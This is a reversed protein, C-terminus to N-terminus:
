EDASRDLWHRELREGIGEGLADALARNFASLLDGNHGKLVCFATPQAEFPEAPVAITHPHDRRALYGGVDFNLAAVDAAGGVVAALAEAYSDVTSLVLDSPDRTLLGVLPGRGPTVVRGGAPPKSGAWDNDRPGFWAAGTTVLPASQDYKEAFEPIISKFALADAAGSRLAAEHDALPVIVFEPTHGIRALVDTLLEVVLGRSEGQDLFALPAFDADHAIRIPTQSM